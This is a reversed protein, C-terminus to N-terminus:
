LLQAATSWLPHRTRGLLNFFFFIIVFLLSVRGRFILTEDVLLEFEAVGRTPTKYYNRLRLVSLTAPEDFYLFLDNARGADLSWPALWSDAASKSTPPPPPPVSSWPQM